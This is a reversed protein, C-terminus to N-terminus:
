QSINLIAMYTQLFRKLQIHRDYAWKKMRSVQLKADIKDIITQTYNYAQIPTYTWALYSADLVRAVANYATWEWAELGSKCEGVYMVRADDAELMCMNGYTQVVQDAQYCVNWECHSKTQTAGCVPMYEKTCVKPSEPPLTATDDVKCEGDYLYTANKNANMMCANGFTEKVPPCPAQICQVAVEACVPDYQMTCMTPEEIVGSTAYATCTYVPEKQDLCARMTCAWNPSTIDSRSCMNCGDNYAICNKPLSDEPTAAKTVNLIVFSFAVLFLGTIIKKM